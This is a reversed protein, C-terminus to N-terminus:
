IKWKKAEIKSVLIYNGLRLIIKYNTWMDDNMYFWYGRQIKKEFDPFNYWPQVKSIHIIKM